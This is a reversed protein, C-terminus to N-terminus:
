SRELTRDNKGDIKLDSKPRRQAGNQHGRPGGPRELFRGLYGVSPMALWLWKTKLIHAGGYALARNEGEQSGLSAGLDAWTPRLVTRAHSRKKCRNQSRKKTTNPSRKPTGKPGWPPGFIWKPGGPRNLFRGLYRMRPMAAVLPRGLVARSRELGGWFSWVGGLLVM